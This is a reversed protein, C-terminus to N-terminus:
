LNFSKKIQAAKQKSRSREAVLFLSEASGSESWGSGESRELGTSAEPPAGIRAAIM